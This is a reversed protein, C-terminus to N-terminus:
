EEEIVERLTNEETAAKRLAKAEPLEVAKGCCDGYVLGSLCGCKRASVARGGTLAMTSDIAKQFDIELEQRLSETGRVLRELDAISEQTTKVSLIYVRHFGGFALFGPLNKAEKYTSFIDLIFPLQRVKTRMKCGNAEWSVTPDGVRVMGGLDLDIEDMPQAATVGEKWCGHKQLFAVWADKGAEDCEAPDRRMVELAQYIIRVDDSAAGVFWNGM